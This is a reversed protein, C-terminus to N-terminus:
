TTKLKPQSLRLSALTGSFEGNYTLNVRTQYWGHRACMVNGYITSGHTLTRNALLDWVQKWGREEWIGEGANLELERILKSDRARDVLEGAYVLREVSNMVDVVARGRRKLLEPDDMNAQALTEASRADATRRGRTIVVAEGPSSGVVTIYCPALLATNEFCTRASDFSPTESELAQRVLQGVLWGGSICCRLLPLMGPEPNGSAAQGRFNVAVSFDGDVMGTLIGTYGAWTTARYVTKGNRTFNLQVTLPALNFPMRWDMTRLHLLADSHAPDCYVISTCGAAM